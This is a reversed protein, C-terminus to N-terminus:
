MYYLCHKEICELIEEKIDYEDELEEVEIALCEKYLMINQSYGALMGYGDWNLIENIGVNEQSSEAYILAYFESVDQYKIVLWGKFYKTKEKLFKELEEM